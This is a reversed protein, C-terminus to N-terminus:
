VHRATLSWVTQMPSCRLLNGPESLKRMRMLRPKIEAKQLPATLKIPEETLILHRPYGETMGAIVLAMMQPAILHALTRIQLDLANPAPIHDDAIEVNTETVDDSQRALDLRVTTEGGARNPADVLETEARIMVDDLHRDLILELDLVAARRLSTEISTHATDIRDDTEMGSTATGEAGTATMIEVVATDTPDNMMAEYAAQEQKKIALMPDSAVKSATDRSSNANQNLAMFGEEGADKKLVEAESRKVLGDLRRKGLLYGEMEETVGGAGLGGSGPGNYMWDVRDVRKRGGAAEQLRELEQIQREEAREKLVQDTKKREELAKLEENYVRRQNTMLAPHWSKKLNLDGGM